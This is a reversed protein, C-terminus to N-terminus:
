QILPRVLALLEAKATDIDAKISCGAANTHGGGGFKEAISAVNISDKSRLSVKYYDKDIERLLISVRINRMTRPYSVFNETDDPSSLTEEFMKKTITTVAIGDQIQLTNLMKIFLKFRGESWLEFLERSIAYPKAGAETLDAVIRFVEPTTNEYRFNGTDLAIAAYLNTAMDESLKIGLGKIVYYIMMGTAAFDPKVWRINGFTSETEHHDIVITTVGENATLLGEIQGRITMPSSEVNNGTLGTRSITNCDILILTKCNQINVATNQLDDFRHLKNHGPLFECHEPIRDRNLIIVKKGLDEMAMALAICSGIGDADPELHTLIIFPGDSKLINLLVAPPNM